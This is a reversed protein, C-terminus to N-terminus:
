LLIALLALLSLIVHKSVFSVVTKVARSLKSCVKGISSNKLAAIRMDQAEYNAHSNDIDIKKYNKSIDDIANCGADEIMKLNRERNEYEETSLQIASNISRSLRWQEEDTLKYNFEDLKNLMHKEWKMYEEVSNFKKNLGQKFESTYKNIFDRYYRKYKQIEFLNFKQGLAKAKKMALMNKIESLKHNLKVKQIQTDIKVKVKKCFEKITKIIKEIANSAKKKFEEFSAELMIDSDSEAISIELISSANEYIAISKALSLDFSKEEIIFDM